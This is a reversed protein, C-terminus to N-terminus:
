TLPTPSRNSDHWSTATTSLTGARSAPARELRFDGPGFSVTGGGILGRSLVGYATIDIGLERCTPLIAGRHRPLDAFVRNCTSSRSASAAASTDAGVESLGIHRVYGPRSWTPSPASPTRSPCTRTWGRPATSISTTPARAAAPLLVPLQAVAAPRSDYGALRRGARAVGRVERQDARERPKGALAEGILLENHGMGYFDGTDLLTVGAGLAAHITAVSEDADAPGYTGSMGMCGLGLAGVTPGSTGLQRSNLHPTTM